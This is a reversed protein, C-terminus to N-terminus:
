NIIKMIKSIIDANFKHDGKVWKNVKQTSSDIKKAFDTKSLNNKRMYRLIKLAILQSEKLWERNELRYKAEEQWNSKETVLNNLKKLKNEM